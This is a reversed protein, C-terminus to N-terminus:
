DAIPWPLPVELIDAADRGARAKLVGKATEPVLQPMELWVPDLPATAYPNHLVHLEHSRLTTPNMRRTVIVVSVKQNRPGHSGYLAGNPLRVNPENHWTGDSLRHDVAHEEGFLANAIDQLQCFDEDVNIAIILPFSLDGYKRAKAEIAARIDEHVLIQTVETPMQVAIPRVGNTGRIALSKPIPTFTLHLSDFAWEFQPLAEYTRNRYSQEVHTVDVSALWEELNARLQRGPINAETSGRYQVELFFNPSHMRNLSDYLENIRREAAVDTRPPTAQTAEVYFLQGAQGRALFDPHSTVNAPLDPHIQVEYRMQRLLRHLYLEWFAGQHDVAIRSRFRGRIDAAHPDPVGEFWTELLGRVAIFGPRASSNMYDFASENERRPRLATRVISDFLPM